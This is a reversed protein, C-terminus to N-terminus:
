ATAESEPLRLPFSSTEKETKMVITTRTSGVIGDREIRDVFLRWLDNTDRVRVKVLLCDEGAVHHIEQIEELEILHQALETAPTNGATRVFAFAVLGVGLADPDIRATYGRIVGRAELKRVREHIASQSMGLQRGIEATSSRASEQLIGLIQFDIADLMLDAGHNSVRLQNVM